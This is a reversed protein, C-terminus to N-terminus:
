EEQSAVRDPLALAGRGEWAAQGSDAPEQWSVLGGIQGSDLDEDPFTINEARSM